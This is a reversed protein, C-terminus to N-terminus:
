IPARIQAEVLQRSSVIYTDHDSLEDNVQMLEYYTTL